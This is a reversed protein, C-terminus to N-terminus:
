DAKGNINDIEANVQDVMRHAGRIVLAAVIVVAVIILVAIIFGM